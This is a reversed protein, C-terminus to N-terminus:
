EKESLWLGRYLVAELGTPAKPWCPSGSLKQPFHAYGTQDTGPRHKIATVAWGVTSESQGATTIGCWLVRHLRHPSSLPGGAGYVMSALEPYPQVCLESDLLNKNTELSRQGEAWDGEAIHAEILARQVTERLPETTVAMM